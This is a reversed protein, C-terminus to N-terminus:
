WLIHPQENQQYKHPQQGDSNSTKKEWFRINKETNSDILSAQM